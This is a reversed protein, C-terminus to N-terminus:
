PPSDVIGEEIMKTSDDMASNETAVSYLLNGKSQISYDFGGIDMVSDMSAVLPM